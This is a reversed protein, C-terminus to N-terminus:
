SGNKEGIVSAQQVTSSLCVMDMKEIGFKKEISEIRDVTLTELSKAKDLIEPFSKISKVNTKNLLKSHGLIPIVSELYETLQNLTAKNSVNGLLLDKGKPIIIGLEELRIVVAKYPVFYQNMIDAIMKLMTSLPILDNKNRSYTSRVEKYFQKFPEKPMLIESAFRNVVDEESIGKFEEPYKRLLEVHIKWIHGLEHAATFFQKEETQNTNIFVFDKPKGNVPMGMVHFGNNDEEEDLPYYIVVCYKGLLALIDERLIKNFFSSDLKDKKWIEKTLNVIKRSLEETIINQM